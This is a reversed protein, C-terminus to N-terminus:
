EKVGANATDPLLQVNVAESDQQTKGEMKLIKPTQTHFCLLKNKNYLRTEM